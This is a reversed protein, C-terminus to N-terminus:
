CVVGTAITHSVGDETLHFVGVTVVSQLPWVDTDASGNADDYCHRMFLGVRQGRRRADKVRWGEM